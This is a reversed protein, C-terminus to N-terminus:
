LDVSYEASIYSSLSINKFIIGFAAFVLVQTDKDDKGYGSAAGIDLKRGSRSKRVTNIKETTTTSTREVSTVEDDDHFEQVRFPPDKHERERSAANPDEDFLDDSNRCCPPQLMHLRHLM